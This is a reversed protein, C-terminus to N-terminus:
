NTCCPCIKGKKNKPTSKSNFPRLSSKSSKAILAAVSYQNEKQKEERLIQTVLADSALKLANTVTTITLIKLTNYSPPLAESIIMAFKADMMEDGLTALQTHM